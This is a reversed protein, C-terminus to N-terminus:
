LVASLAALAWLPFWFQYLRHIWAGRYELFLFGGDSLAEKISLPSFRMGRGSSGAM